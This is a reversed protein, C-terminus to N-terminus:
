SVIQTCVLNRRMEATKASCLQLRSTLGPAAGNCEAVALEPTATRKRTGWKSSCNPSCSLHTPSCAARPLQYDGLEYGKRCSWQRVNFVRVRQPFNFGYMCISPVVIGGGKERPRLSMIPNVMRLQRGAYLFELYM